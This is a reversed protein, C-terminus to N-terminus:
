DKFAVGIRNEKRWMVQCRRNSRNGSILLNFEEPIGVPSAVELAAGTESVNRITCDITGGSFEITGAKLVRQRLAIRKQEMTPAAHQASPDGAPGAAPSQQDAHQRAVAIAQETLAPRIRTWALNFRVQCDKFNIAPGRDNAVAPQGALNCSWWWHQSDPQKLIRGVPLGRWVVEYDDTQVQGAIVVPRLAVTELDDAMLPDAERAEARGTARPRIRDHAQVARCM